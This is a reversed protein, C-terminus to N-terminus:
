SNLKTKLEEIKSNFYNEKEPNKKILKKYISIAAQFENQNTYIKALTESVILNKNFDEKSSSSKIIKSKAESISQNAGEIEKTLKTLTEEISEDAIANLNKSSAENTTNTLNDNSYEVWRSVNFFSRQKKTSDIENFYYEFSKQSHILESGKKIFSLAQSYNGKLTYAKGLLFYAVAFEPYNKIGKTLINIATDLNNKEIEIGALRAFLPSKDNYEYILSVKQNFAEISGNM